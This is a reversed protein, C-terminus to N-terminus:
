RESPRKSRMAWLAAGIAGAYRGHCGAVVECPGLLDRRGHLEQEIAPRLLHLAAALGGGVVVEQIGLLACASGIGSGLATGARELVQLCGIDGQEAMQCICLATVLEAKGGTASELGPSQGARMAHGGALALAVGGAFAEVCGRAGCACLPGRPDYTMHGVEGVRDVRGVLLTGSLAVAGGVGTGLSVFLVDRRGAAAGSRLEAFAFARADNLVNVPRNCLRELLSTVELGRWNGAVNPIVTSIGTARDIHGPLAVGIVDVEPSSHIAEAVRAIVDTAGSTPTGLSSRDRVEADELLAVKMETGGVDVGLSLM